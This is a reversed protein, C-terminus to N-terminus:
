LPFQGYEGHHSSQNCILTSRDSNKMQLETYHASRLQFRLTTAVEGKLLIPMITPCAKLLM